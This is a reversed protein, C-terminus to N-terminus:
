TTVINTGWLTFHPLMRKELEMPVLFKKVNNELKKEWTDRTKIYLIERGKHVIKYIDGYLNKFCCACGYQDGKYLLLTNNYDVETM